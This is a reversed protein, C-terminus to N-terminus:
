VFEGPVWREGVRSFSTPGRVGKAVSHRAHGPIVLTPHKLMLFEPEIPTLSDVHDPGFRGLVELTHTTPPALWLEGTEARALTQEVDLWGAETTELEDHQGLPAHQGRLDLFFFRADYRRREVKPTVWRSWPRLTGLRPSAQTQTLVEEFTLEGSNLQRQLVVRAELSLESGLLIGSEEFTERIAALAFSASFGANAPPQELSALWGLKAALVADAADVTGGPFVHAGAMFGSKGHRKVM